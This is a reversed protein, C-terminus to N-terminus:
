RKKPFYDLVAVSDIDLAKAAKQNVLRILPANVGAAGSLVRRDLDFAQDDRMKQSDPISLAIRSFVDNRLLLVVSGSADSM